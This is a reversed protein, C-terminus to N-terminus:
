QTEEILEETTKINTPQNIVWWSDYLATGLYLCLPHNSMVHRSEKKMTDGQKEQVVFVIIINSGLVTM